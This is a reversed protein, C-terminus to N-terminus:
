PHGGAAAACGQCGRYCENPFTRHLGSGEVCKPNLFFLYIPVVGKYQCSNCCSTCSCVRNKPCYTAWDILRHICSGSKRGPCCAGDPPPGYPLFSDPKALAAVGPTSVNFWNNEPPQQPGPEPAASVAEQQAMAVAPTLLHCASLAVLLAVGGTTASFTALPNIRDSRM